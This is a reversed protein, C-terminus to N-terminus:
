RDVVSNRLEYAFKSNIDVAHLKTINWNDVGTLHATCVYVAGILMKTVPINLTLQTSYTGNTDVMADEPNSLMLSGQQGLRMPHFIYIVLPEYATYTVSLNRFTVFAERPSLRM